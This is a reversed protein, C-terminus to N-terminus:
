RFRSFEIGRVNSPRRKEGHGPSVVGSKARESEVPVHLPRDKARLHRLLTLLALSPSCLLLPQRTVNRMPSCCQM